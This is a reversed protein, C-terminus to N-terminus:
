VVGFIVAIYGAYAALLLLSWVRTFKEGGMFLPVVALAFAATVLTDSINEVPVPWILAAVGMVFLLNFINSGLINGVSIGGEGRVIAMISTALEPLSTGVAVISLGIV